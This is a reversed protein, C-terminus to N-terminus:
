EGDGSEDVEVDPKARKVKAKTKGATVVLTLAPVATPHKYTGVVKLERAKEVLEDNLVGLRNRDEGMRTATESHEEMLKNLEPHSPAEIGALEGQKQTKKKAAM